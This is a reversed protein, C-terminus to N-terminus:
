VNLILDTIMVIREYSRITTQENGRFVGIVESCFSDQLIRIFINWESQICSDANKYFLTSPHSIYMGVVQKM